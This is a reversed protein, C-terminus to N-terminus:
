DDSVLSGVVNIAGFDVTVAVALTMTVAVAVALLRVPLGQPQIAM